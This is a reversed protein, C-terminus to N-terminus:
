AAYRVTAAKRKMLHGGVDLRRLKGTEDVEGFAAARVIPAQARREDPVRLWLRLPHVVDEVENAADLPREILVGRDDPPLTVRELVLQLGAFARRRLMRAGDLHKACGPLEVVESVDEGGPGDVTSTNTGVVLDVADHGVDGAAEIGEANWM